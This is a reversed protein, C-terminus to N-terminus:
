SGSSWAALRPDRVSSAGTSTTSGVPASVITTAAGRRGRPRRGSRDPRPAASPRFWAREADVHRAGAQEVRRGCRKIQRLDAEHRRWRDSGRRAPDDEDGAAGGADAGVDNPGEGALPARTAKRSMARRLRRLARRPVRALPACAAATEERQSTVSMAASCAASRSPRALPEARDRHQDVVGGVVLAVGDVLDRRVIPVLRLVDVQAVMEEGGLRHVRLHLSSPPPEIM